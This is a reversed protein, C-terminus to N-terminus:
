CLCLQGWAMHTFEQGLRRSTLAAEQTPGAALSHASGPERRGGGSGRRGRERTEGSFVGSDGGRLLALAVFVVEISLVALVSVQVGADLLDCPAERLEIGLEPLEGLAGLLIVVLGLRSRKGKKGM